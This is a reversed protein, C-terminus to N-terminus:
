RAATWKAWRERRNLVQVALWVCFATFTIGIIPMGFEVPMM